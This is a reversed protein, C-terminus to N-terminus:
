ALLEMINQILEDPTHGEKESEKITAMIDQQMMNYYAILDLQLPAVMRDFQEESLKGNVRAEDM